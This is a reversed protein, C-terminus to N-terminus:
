PSTSSLVPVRYFDRLMAIEAGHHIVEDLVHGVFGYRPQQGYPGGIEGVPEWLLKDDLKNLNAWWYAYREDLRELAGAATPPVGTVRTDFRNDWELGLWTSNREVAFDIHDLRWAISSLHPPSPEPVVQANARWVGNADPRITYSGPAPEWLYEEDGLGEVRSRLRDVVYDFFGLYSDVLRRDEVVGM